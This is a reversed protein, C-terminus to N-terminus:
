GCHPELGEVATRGLPCELVKEDLIGGCIANLLGSVLRWFTLSFRDREGVGLDRLEPQGRKEGVAEVM